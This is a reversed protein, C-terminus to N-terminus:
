ISLNGRTEKLFGMWRNVARTMCYSSQEDKTVLSRWLSPRGHPISNPQSHTNTSSGGSLSPHRSNQPLHSRWVRRYTATSDVVIYHSTRTKGYPCWSM